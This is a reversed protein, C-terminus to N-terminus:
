AAKRKGKKPLDELQDPDFEVPTMRGFIEVLAKVRDDHTIQEVEALFSVFPGDNVRFKRGIEFRQELRHRDTEGRAKRAAKTDDYVSEFEATIIAEIVPPPIVLPGSGTGLPAVVGNIARVETWDDVPQGKRPHVVFLYGPLLPESWEVTVNMRRNFRDYRRRPLYVDYGAEHLEAFVGDAMGGKVRVVFWRRDQVTVAMCNPVKIKM